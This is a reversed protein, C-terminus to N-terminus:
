LCCLLYRIEGDVEAPDHVTQAIEDRLFERYRRRLRHCAVAVAGPEMALQAAIEAHPAASAGTLTGKLADFLHEQRQTRYHDRLRLLVRDLVAWAWRREFLREATMEHAPELAYRAEAGLTDLAFTQVGGGRRQATQKDHENHLFNQLSALLFSRFRGRAPEAATLANKELVRAFFSQTLDEAAAASHGRRRLYAYLPFWYAAALESLAHRSSADVPGGAALVLTWRTPAFRADTTAPM